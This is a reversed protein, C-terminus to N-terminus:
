ENHGSGLSEQAAVLHKISKPRCLPSHFVTGGDQLESGLSSPQM